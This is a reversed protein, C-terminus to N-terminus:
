GAQVGRSTSAAGSAGDPLSAARRALAFPLPLGDAGPLFPVLVAAAATDPSTLSLRSRARLERALSALLDSAM